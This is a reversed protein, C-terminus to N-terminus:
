MVLLTFDGDVIADVVILGDEDMSLEVVTLGCCEILRCGSLRFVMAEKNFLKFVMTLTM